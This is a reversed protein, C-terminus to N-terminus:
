SRPVRSRNEDIREILLNFDYGRLRPCLNRVAPPIERLLDDLSYTAALYLYELLPLDGIESPIRTLRNDKLWLGQLAQLKGIEPPIERLLNSSLNLWELSRLNGIEPPIERLKNDSLKLHQLSQLNGIEPPIRTLQNYTLDLMKLQHLKGIEPPIITFPLRQIHERIKPPIVTFYSRQMPIEKLNKLEELAYHHGSNKLWYQLRGWSMMQEYASKLISNNQVRHLLDVDSQVLNFLDRPELHEIFDLIVQIPLESFYSCEAQNSHM